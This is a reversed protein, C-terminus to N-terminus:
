ESFDGLFHGSLWDENRESATFRKTIDIFIALFLNVMVFYPDGTSIFMPTLILCVMTANSLAYNWVDMTELALCMCSLLHIKPM